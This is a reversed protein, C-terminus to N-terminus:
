QMLITVSCVHEKAHEPDGQTCHKLFNSKFRTVLSHSSFTHSRLRIYLIYNILCVCYDDLPYTVWILYQIIVLWATENIQFYNQVNTYKTIM